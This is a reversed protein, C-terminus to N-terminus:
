GAGGSMGVACCRSRLHTSTAWWSVSGRTTGAMGVARGTCMLACRGVPYGLGAGSGEVTVVVARAVGPQTCIAPPSRLLSVIVWGCHDTVSNSVPRAFSTIQDAGSHGGLQPLALGLRM